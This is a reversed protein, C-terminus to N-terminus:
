RFYNLKYAYPNYYNFDDFYRRAYANNYTSATGLIM